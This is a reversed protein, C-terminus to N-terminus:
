EEEDDQEEENNDQEKKVKRQMHWQHDKPEMQKFINCKYLNCDHEDKPFRKGNFIEHLVTFMQLIGWM